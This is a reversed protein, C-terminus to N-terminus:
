GDASSGVCGRSLHCLPRAAAGWQLCHIAGANRRVKTFPKIGFSNNESVQHLHLTTRQAADLGALMLPFVNFSSEGTPQQAVRCRELLMTQLHAATIQGTAGFDLSLVMSFRTSSSSHSTTVSGFAGLVTFMAQIKEVSVSGDVSGASGVLFELAKRCCSTRGAGTRGLPVIAQDQRQLLLNRYARQAVSCIHPPMDRKGKLARGAPGGGTGSDRIAVLSPGAFTCPLRARYRQQLTNMASCSNLSVLAALDEALDLSPPNTRQVSDEDVETISGDADRRVRVRGAPLEPTGVDPKLQTALTFGDEQVLWVKEAEYWVDRPAQPSSLLSDQLFWHFVASSLSCRGWACCCSGQAGRGAQGWPDGERSFLMLAGPWLFLGAPGRYRVQDKDTSEGTEKSEGPAEKGEGPKEKAKGLEKAVDESKEQTRGPEEKPGESKNATKGPKKIERPEKKGDGVDKKMKEPERRAPGLERKAGARAPPEVRSLPAGKEKKTSEPVTSKATDGVKAPAKSSCQPGKSPAPAPSQPSGGLCPDKPSKESCSPKAAKPAEPRPTEAPKPAASTPTLPLPSGAPHPDKPSKKPCLPKAAKPAEPRPTETPKPSAPTPTLPPPSGGPHPDKPSRKPCSPKAAEPQPTEAPKPAAAAPGPAPSPAKNSIPGSAAKGPPLEKRPPATVGKAGPGEAQLGNPLAQGDPSLRPCGTIGPTGSVEEKGSAKDKRLKAAKAEKETERVLQKIFGGPIVSLLLPPAAPPPGRDEDRIQKAPASTEKQEWLALRSSIAM